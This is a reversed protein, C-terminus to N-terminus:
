LVSEDEGGAGPIAHETDRTRVEIPNAIQPRSVFSDIERCAELCHLADDDDATAEDTQLKRRCRSRQALTHENHFRLGASPM